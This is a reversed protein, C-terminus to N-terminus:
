PVILSQPFFLFMTIHGLRLHTPLFVVNDICHCPLLFQLSLQISNQPYMGVQVSLGKRGVDISIASLPLYIM